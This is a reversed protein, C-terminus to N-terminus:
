PIEFAPLKNKMPKVEATFSPEKMNLYKGKFRDPAKIGRGDKWEILVIYDGPAAGKGSAGALEFTGDQDVIGQLAQGTLRDASDKPLDASDKRHFYVAAGVAPEGKYLVKGRVPFHGKSDSCGSLWATVIFISSIRFLRGRVTSSRENILIISSTSLFQAIV